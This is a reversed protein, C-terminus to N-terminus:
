VPDPYREPKAGGVKFRLLEMSRGERYANWAKIILAAAIDARLNQRSNAAERIFFNRLALIPDGKELGAGDRLRLWFYEADEKDIRAFLWACLGVAQSTVGRHHASERRGVTAAEILADRNAAFYEIFEDNSVYANRMANSRIGRNWRIIITVVGALTTLSVLSPDYISLVDARSRSKGTDLTTMAKPEVGRVVLLIQKKGTVSIAMCRHQGDIMEGRTNFRIPTGDDHWRDERMAQTIADLNSESLKRNVGMTELWEEAVEPTVVVTEYELGM